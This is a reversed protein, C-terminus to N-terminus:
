DWLSDFHRVFAPLIITKFTQMKKEHFAIVERKAADTMGPVLDIEDKHYWEFWDATETLWDKWRTLAYEFDVPSGHEDVPLNYEECIWTPCGHAERAMHRLAPALVGALYHDLSWTDIPAWGNWGRYFFSGIRRLQWRIEAAWESPTMRYPIM